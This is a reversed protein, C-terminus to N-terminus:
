SQASSTEALSRLPLSPSVAVTHGKLRIVGGSGGSSTADGMGRIGKCRSMDVKANRDRKEREKEREREREREQEREREREKEKEKVVAASKKKKDRDGNEQGQGQHSAAPSGTKTGMKYGKAGFGHGEAGEENKVKMLKKGNSTEEGAGGRSTVPSVPNSSGNASNEGGGGRGNGSTTTTAVNRTTTTIRIKM